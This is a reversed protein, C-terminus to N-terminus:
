TRTGGAPLVGISHTRGRHAVGVEDALGGLGTLVGFSWGGVVDMPFHVGVVVRAVGVLAALAVVALRWRKPVVVIAMM